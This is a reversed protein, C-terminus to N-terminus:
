RDRQHNFRRDLEARFESDELKAILPDNAGKYEGAEFFTADPSEYCGIVGMALVLMGAIPLLRRVIM